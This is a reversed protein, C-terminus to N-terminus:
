VDLDKRLLDSYEMDLNSTEYLDSPVPVSLSKSIFQKAYPDILSLAVAKTDCQNLKKYVKEM